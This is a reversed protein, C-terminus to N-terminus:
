VIATNNHCQTPQWIIHVHWLCLTHSTMSLAMTHHRMNLSHSIMCLLHCTRDYITRTIDHISHMHHWLYYPKNEYLTSIIDPTTCIAAYMHCRHVRVCNTHHRRCLTNSSMHLPLSPMKWPNWSLYLAQTTVCVSHILDYVTSIIDYVYHTGHCIFLPIIVDFTSKIDYLTGITDYMSHTHNWVYLPHLIITWTLTDVGIYDTHHQICHNHQWEYVMHCTMYVSHSTMFIPPTKDCNCHSHHWLYLTHSSMFLPHWTIFLTSPIDHM